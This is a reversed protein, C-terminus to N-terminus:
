RPRKPNGNRRDAPREAARSPCASRNPSRATLIVVYQRYVRCAVRVRSHVGLKRYLRKLHTRVTDPSLGLDAAVAELTLDELIRETVQIERPSLGLSRYVEQWIEDPEPPHSAVMAEHFSRPNSM